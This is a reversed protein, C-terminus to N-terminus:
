RPSEINDNASAGRRRDRPKPTRRLEEALESAKQDGRRKALLSAPDYLPAPVRPLSKDRLPNLEVQGRPRRPRTPSGLFPQHTTLPVTSGPIRPYRVQGRSSSEAVPSLVHHQGPMEEDDGADEFSTDSDMSFHTPPRRRNSKRRPAPRQSRIESSPVLDSSALGQSRPASTSIGNELGPQSQNLLPQSRPASLSYRALVPKRTIETLRARSEYDLMNPYPHQTPAVQDQQKAHTSPPSSTYPDVFPDSPSFQENFRGRQLHVQSTDSSNRGRPPPRTLPMTVSGAIPSAPSMQTKIRLPSPYLSYTPKDPLLQSDTRRSTTSVQPSDHAADSARQPDVAAGIEESNVGRAWLDWRSGDSTTPAAHTQHTVSTPLDRSRDVHEPSSAMVASARRSGERSEM